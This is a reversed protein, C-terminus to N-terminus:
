RPPFVRPDVECKLVFPFWRCDFQLTRRIEHGELLYTECLHSSERVARVAEQCSRSHRLLTEPTFVRKSTRGRIGFSVITLSAVVLNNITAIENVPSATTRSTAETKFQDRDLWSTQHFPDTYDFRSNTLRLPCNTGMYM